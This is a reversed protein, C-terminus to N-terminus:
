VWGTLGAATTGENFIQDAFIPYTGLPLPGTTHIQGDKSSRYRLSGGLGGITIARIARPLAESNSPLIAFAGIAPAEVGVPHAQFPNDPM